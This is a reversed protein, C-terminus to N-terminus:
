FSTAEDAFRQPAAGPLCALSEVAGRVPKEPDTKAVSFDGGPCELRPREVNSDYHVDDVALLLDGRSTIRLYHGYSSSNVNARTDAAPPFRNLM